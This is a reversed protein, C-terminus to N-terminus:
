RACSRAGHYAIRDKEDRDEEVGKNRQGPSVRQGERPSECGGGWRQSSAHRVRSAAGRQTGVEGPRCHLGPPRVASNGCRTPSWGKSRQPLEQTWLVLTARRDGAVSGESGRPERRPCRPLSNEISRKMDTGRWGSCSARALLERTDVPPSMYVDVGMEFYPIADGGDCSAGLMIVPVPCRDWLYGMLERCGNRASREAMVILNPCHLM